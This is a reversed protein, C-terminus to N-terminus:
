IITITKLEATQYPGSLDFGKPAPHTTAIVMVGIREFVNDHGPIKILVLSILKDRRGESLRSMRVCMVEGQPTGYGPGPGLVYDAHFPFRNGAFSVHYMTAQKGKHSQIEHGLSGIAVLGTLRLEGRAVTGFEDVTSSTLQCAEIKAFHECPLREDFHNGLEEDMNSYLILDWYSVDNEVSAWSWTPANRPSPPLKRTTTAYVTWLLDDNISDEWVGAWYRTKRTGAMGRALGGIAPLKDKFVTLSLATYASVISRWVQARRYQLNADFEPGPISPKRYAYLAMGHEMKMLVIAAADSSGHHRIGNCECEVTVRCEFFLEHHGFHVVRASLMREQYVWARTLLPFDVRTPKWDHTWAGMDTGDDDASELHHDIKERFFVTYDEGDPTKGTVEVDPTKTFLGGDGNASRTAAVTLYGNSYVSAMRAAEVNWDQPDDQVICLSDIWIFRFGLERTLEIAERFTKSLEEWEIVEKYKEFNRKTTRIIPVAGWCHSLCIYRGKAGKSEVLRVPRGDLGVDVVRTPLTPIESSGCPEHYEICYDVWQKITALASASNTQPSTRAVSTPMCDWADPVDDDDIAFMEVEFRHGNTLAFILTKDADDEVDELVRPRYYFRIQGHTIDSEQIGHHRFCGRCGQMLIRCVYCSLASSEIERWTFQPCLHNRNGLRAKVEAAADIPFKGQFLNCIRCTMM